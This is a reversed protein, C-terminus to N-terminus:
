HMCTVKRCMSVNYCVRQQAKGKLIHFTFLLVTYEVKLLEVEKTTQILKKELESVKEMAERESEQLRCSLQSVLM